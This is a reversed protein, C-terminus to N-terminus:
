KLTFISLIFHLQEGIIKKHWRLIKLNLNKLRVIYLDGGQELLKKGLILLGLFWISTAYFYICQKWELTHERKLTVTYFLIARNKKKLDFLILIWMQLKEIHMKM